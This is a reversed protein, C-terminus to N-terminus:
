KKSKPVVRRSAKLDLLTQRASSLHRELHGLANKSDGREIAELIVLHQSVGLRLTGEDFGRHLFQLHIPLTIHQSYDKLFRNGAGKLITEHFQRDLRFFAGREFKVSKILSKTERHIKLFVTDVAQDRRSLHQKLAFLELLVRLDMLENIMERDIEVVRWQKRAQKTFVGLRSLSLLAERVTGTTVGNRKALALESFFEGPKLRGSTLMDLLSQEVGERRSLMSATPLYDKKRPKRALYLGAETKRALLGIRQLTSLIRRITTRSADCIESLRRETPLKAGVKGEVELFALLANHANSNLSSRTPLAV